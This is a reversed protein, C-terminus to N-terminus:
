VKWTFSDHFGLAKPFILHKFDFAFRFKLIQSICTFMLIISLTQTWSHTRLIAYFKLFAKFLFQVLPRSLHYSSKNYESNMWDAPTLSSFKSSSFQNTIPSPLELTALHYLTLGYTSLSLRWISDALWFKFLELRITTKIITSILLYPQINFINQQYLCCCKRFSQAGLIFLSSGTHWEILSFESRSLVSNGDTTILFLFFFIPCLM